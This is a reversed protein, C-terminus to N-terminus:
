CERTPDQGISHTVHVMDAALTLLDRRARLLPWASSTSLYSFMVQVLVSLWQAGARQFPLM